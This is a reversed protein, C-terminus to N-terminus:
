KLMDEVDADLGGDPGLDPFEEGDDIRRRKNSGNASTDISQSDAREAENSTEGEPQDYIDPSDVPSIPYTPPTLAEMEPRDPEQNVGATGDATSGNGDPGLARMIGLEVEQKKNEIETKRQSLLDQSAKDVQAASKQEGLLRELESILSERAKVSEAVATEATALTKLLGNLRAAYVPASPVAISPDTQKIYEQDATDVTSKM